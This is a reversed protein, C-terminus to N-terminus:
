RTVALEPQAEAANEAAERVLAHAADQDPTYHAEIIVAHEGSTFRRQAIHCGYRERVEVGLWDAFAKLADMPHSGDRCCDALRVNLRLERVDPAGHPHTDFYLALDGIALSTETAPGGRAAALERERDTLGIM